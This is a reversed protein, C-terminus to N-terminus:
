HLRLQHRPMPFIEEPPPDNIIVQRDPTIFDDVERIKDRINSLQCSLGMGPGEHRWYYQNASAQDAFEWFKLRAVLFVTAMVLVSQPSHDADCFTLVAGFTLHQCSAAAVTDSLPHFM